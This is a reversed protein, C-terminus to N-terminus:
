AQKEEAHQVIDNLKEEVNHVPFEWNLECLVWKEM